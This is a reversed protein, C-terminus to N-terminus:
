FTDDGILQVVQWGVVMGEGTDWGLMFQGMFEVQGSSTFEGVPGVVVFFYEWLQHQRRYVGLIDSVIVIDM